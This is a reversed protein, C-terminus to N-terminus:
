FNFINQFHCFFFKSLYFKRVWVDYSKQYL